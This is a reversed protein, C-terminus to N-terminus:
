FPVKNNKENIHIKLDAGKIFDFEINSITIEYEIDEEAIAEKLAKAIIEELQNASLKKLLM